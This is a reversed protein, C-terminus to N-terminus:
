YLFNRFLTKLDNDLKFSTCLELTSFQLNCQEITQKLLYANNQPHKNGYKVNNRNKWIQWKAELIVYDLFTKLTENLVDQTGFLVDEISFHYICNYKNLIQNALNNWIQKVNRCEYLLHCPRMMHTANSM